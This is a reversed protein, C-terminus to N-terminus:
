RAHSHLSRKECDVLELPQCVVARLHFEATPLDNALRRGAELVTRDPNADPRNKALENLFSRQPFDDARIRAKDQEVFRRRDTGRVDSDYGLVPQSEVGRAGSKATSITEGEFM